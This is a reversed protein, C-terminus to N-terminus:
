LRIQMIKVTTYFNANMNATSPKADKKLSLVRMSHAM